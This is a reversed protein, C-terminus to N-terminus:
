TDYGCSVAIVPMAQFTFVSPLEVISTDSMDILKKVREMLTHLSFNTTLVRCCFQFSQPSPKTCFDAFNIVM